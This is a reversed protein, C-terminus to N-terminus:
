GHRGGNRGLYIEELRNPLGAKEDPSMHEIDRANQERLKSVADEGEHQAHQWEDIQDRRFIHLRDAAELAADCLREFWAM